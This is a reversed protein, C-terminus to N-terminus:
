RTKSSKVLLELFRLLEFSRDVLFVTCSFTVRYIICSKSVAIFRQLLQM